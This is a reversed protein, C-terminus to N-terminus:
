QRTLMYFTLSKTYHYDVKLSINLLPGKYMYLSIPSYAINVISLYSNGLPKKSSLM